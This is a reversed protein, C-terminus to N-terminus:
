RQSRVPTIENQQSELILPAVDVDVINNELDYINGRGDAHLERWTPTNLFRYVTREGTEFLNPTIWYKPLDQMQFVTNQKDSPFDGRIDIANQTEGDRFFLGVSILKTFGYKIKVEDKNSPLGNSKRQLAVDIEEPFRFFDVRESYIESIYRFTIAANKTADKIQQNLNTNNSYFFIILPNKHVDHHIPFFVKETQANFVGTQIINNNLIDDISRGSQTGYFQEQVSPIDQKPTEQAKLLSMSALGISTALAVTGVYKKM